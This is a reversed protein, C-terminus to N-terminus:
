KIINISFSIRHDIPQILLNHALVATQGYSSLVCLQCVCSVQSNSVFMWALWGWRTWISMNCKGYPNSCVRHISMFKWTLTTVAHTRVQLMSVLFSSYYLVLISSYFCFQVTCSFVGPKIFCFFLIHGCRVHQLMYGHGEVSCCWVRPKLCM